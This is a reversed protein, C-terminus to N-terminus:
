KQFELVFRYKAKGEHVKAIAENVKEPEDFTCKIIQIEPVVEAEAAFEFMHKIDKSGGILSGCVSRRGRLLKFAAFQIKTSPIGILVLQGNPKLLDLYADWDVNASSTFMIFDYSRKISALDTEKINVFHDSGFRTADEEKNNSTSLVSVEYGLAHAWKVAFHGLGGLGVVAVHAGKKPKYYVLPSFCTIGACLMTAADHSPIADPIHFVFGQKVRIHEAYGGSRPDYLPKNSDCLPEDGEKCDHCSGCSSGQPGMGVRDGVKFGTVNPGMGVVHGIVEHGPVVPYLTKVGVDSWGNSIRQLDSHCIGCHTVDIAVEDDALPEAVLTLSEVQLGPKTAGFARFTREAEELKVKKFNRMDAM